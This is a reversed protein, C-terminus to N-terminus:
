LIKVHENYVKPTVINAPDLVCIEVNTLGGYLELYHSVMFVQSFTRQEILSKIMIASATRHEKDFASGVEDFYVASDQLGLYQMATLRYALDVIERMGTSGKSVDSIPSDLDGVTMPFKYDLDISDGEVVECSNITFPYTWIKKILSNMQDVYNKIFGLLGEAILGETPSLEKVLIGLAKEESSFTEIRATLNDVITKQAAASNLVSERSALASQLDRILQNFVLRRHTEIEEKNTLRKQQIVDRIQEKTLLISQHYKLEAESHSKIRQAKELVSTQDSLRLELEKNQAELSIIDANGIEQLSQLTAQLTDLKKLQLEIEVQQYLDTEIRTIQNIGSRPDDTLTKKEALFDWYAKLRPLASTLQLYQRYLRAYVLCDEVYTEQEQIAPYIVTELEDELKAVATLMQSHRDENFSLSFSHHCKPCLADPADRHEQMHKISVKAAALKDVLVTKQLTMAELKQRAEALAVSSYRKDANIPISHFIEVLTDKVANFSTHAEQAFEIPAGLLTTQILKSRSHLLADIEEQLADTTKAEAKELVSIKYRVQSHDESSQEILAQARLIIKSQEEIRDAHDAASCSDESIAEKTTLLRNSLRMLQQDFQQQRIDLEDLDSEVPKRYELVHSLCDHISKAEDHLKKMEDEQLLKESEAVLTKKALKLAGVIDRHREKLKNYVSIAYDYNTDCLRLFWEKRTPDSMTTFKTEGILMEHIDKTIGFHKKVLERQITITGGENKEEGDVLFSHPHSLAFDSTLIYLSNHHEVHIVKRGQNTYFQPNAPLPSLEWLLSSKGSGNTGIILQLMSTITMSFTDIGRLLFRRYNKLEIYTYRM